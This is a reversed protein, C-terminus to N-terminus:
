LLLFLGKKLEFTLFPSMSYQILPHISYQGEEGCIGRVPQKEPTYLLGSSWLDM